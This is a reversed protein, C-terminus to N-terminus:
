AIVNLEVPIGRKRAEAVTHATGRSKGDWYAIVLDPNTDLMRLNRLIGARRGEHKWDAKYRTVHYGQMKAAKHAFEDPGTAGGHIITTGAPLQSIRDHILDWIAIPDDFRSTLRSGCILVRM